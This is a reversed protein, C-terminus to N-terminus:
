RPKYLSRHMKKLIRILKLIDRSHLTIREENGCEECNIQKILIESWLWRTEIEFITPNPYTNSFSEFRIKKDKSFPLKEERLKIKLLNKNQKKM